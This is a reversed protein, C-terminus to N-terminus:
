LRDQRHKFYYMAVVNINHSQVTPLCFRSIGLLKASDADCERWKLVLEAM